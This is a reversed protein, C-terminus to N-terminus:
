PDNDTDQILKAIKATYAGRHQNVAPAESTDIIYKTHRLVQGREHKPLTNILTDLDGLPQEPGHGTALWEPNKGLAAAIPFLHEPRMSKTVGSEIQAIAAGSIGALKGLTQQTYHQALRVRKLRQGVTEAKRTTM